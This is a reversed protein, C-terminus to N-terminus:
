ELEKFIPREHVTLPTLPFVSFSREGSGTDGPLLLPPDSPATGPHRAWRGGQTRAQAHLPPWMPAGAFDGLACALSIVKGRGEFNAPGQGRHELSPRWGSRRRGEEHSQQTRLWRTWNDPLAPQFRFGTQVGVIRGLVNRLHAPEEESLLTLSAGSSTIFVARSNFAGLPMGVHCCGGEKRRHYCLAPKWTLCRGTSGLVAGWGQADAPAAPTSM